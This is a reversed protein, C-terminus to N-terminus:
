WVTDVLRHPANRLPGPQIRYANVSQPPCTQLECHVATRVQCLNLDVAAKGASRRRGLECVRRVHRPREILACHVVNVQIQLRPVVHVLRRTGFLGSDTRLCSDATMKKTGLFSDYVANHQTKPAHPKEQRHM